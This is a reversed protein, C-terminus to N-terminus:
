CLFIPCIDDFVLLFPPLLQKQWIWCFVLQCTHYAYICASTCVCLPVCARGCTCICMCCTYELTPSIYGITKANGKPFHYVTKFISWMCTYTNHVCHICMTHMSGYTAESKKIEGAQPPPLSPKTRCTVLSSWYRSLCFYIFIFLAFIRQCATWLIGCQGGKATDRKAANLAKNINKDTPWSGGSTTANDSGGTCHKRNSHPSTAPSMCVFIPVDEQLHTGM